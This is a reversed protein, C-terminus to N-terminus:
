AVVEGDVEDGEWAPLLAPMKGTVYAKDVAGLIHQGVTLGDPMVIHSLFESEFTAIGSDVVELKAKIALALARWKQRCAQEWANFAADPSRRQRRAPTRKFQEDSPSPMEMQFRLYKGSARFQIMERRVGEQEEWAYSFGSAGYRNLTDEIEARSKAPSVTTESAYRGM